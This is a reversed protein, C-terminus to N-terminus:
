CDHMLHPFTTGAAAAFTDMLTEFISTGGAFPQTLIFTATSIFGLAALEGFMANVAPLFTKPVSHRIFHDLKEYLVGLLLIFTTLVWIENYWLAKSNLIANAGPSVAITETAQAMHGGAVLVAGGAKSLM